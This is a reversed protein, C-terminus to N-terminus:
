TYLTAVSICVCPSKSFSSPVQTLSISLVHNVMGGWRTQIM